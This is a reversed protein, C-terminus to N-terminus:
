RALGTSPVAPSQCQGDRHSRNACPISPGWRSVMQRRSHMAQLGRKAWAPRPHQPMPLNRSGATDLRTGVGELQGEIVKAHADAQPQRFRDLLNLFTGVRAKTTPAQAGMQVDDMPTETLRYPSNCLFLTDPVKKVYFMALAAVMTGQSHSVVAITDNPHKEYITDILRALRKSANVYYTRKPCANLPRDREPNIAPSGINVGWVRPNFGDYWSMSLATTGNQFPGGGWYYIKHKLNKLPEKYSYSPYEYPDGLGNGRQTVRTKLPIRWPFTGNETQIKPARYGWYFRIIPSKSIILGELPRVNKEYKYHNENIDVRGLRENLGRVLGEEADKFWEGESNVGHVFIVICPM